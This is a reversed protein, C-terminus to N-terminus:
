TAITIPQSLVPVYGFTVVVVYPVQVTVLEPLVVCGALSKTLLIVSAAFSVLTAYVVVAPAVAIADNAILFAADVNVTMFLVVATEALKLGGAVVVLRAFEATNMAPKVRSMATVATVCAM